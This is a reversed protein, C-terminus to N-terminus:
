RIDERRRRARGEDEERTGEEGECGAFDRKRFKDWKGERFSAKRVMWFKQTLSIFAIQISRSAEKYMNQEKKTSILM